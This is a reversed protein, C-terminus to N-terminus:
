AETEAPKPNERLFIRLRLAGLALGAIGLWLFAWSLGTWGAAARWLWVGLGLSIMSLMLLRGNLGRVAEGLLGLSVVALVLPPLINESDSVFGLVAAAVTLSLGLVVIVGVWAPPKKLRVYGARPYTVREKLRQLTRNGFIGFCALAPPVVLWFCTYAMGRPLATGILWLGGWTMWLVGMLLEPLGDITWYSSSRREIDKLERQDV